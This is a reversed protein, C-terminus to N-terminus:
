GRNRRLCITLVGLLACLSTSPEPIMQVDVFWNGNGAGLAIPDSLLVGDSFVATAPTGSGTVIYTYAGIADTTATGILDGNGDRVEVTVGAQRQGDSDYVFGYVIADSDFVNVLHQVNTFSGANWGADVTGIGLQNYAANLMANRHGPPNQIGDIGSGWDIVYGMHQHSVNM